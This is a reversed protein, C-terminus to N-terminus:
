MVLGIYVYEKIYYNNTSLGKTITPPDLSLPTYALDKPLKVFKRM